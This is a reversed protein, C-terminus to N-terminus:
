SDHCQLKTSKDVKSLNIIFSPPPMSAGCACTVFQGFCYTGVRARCQKCFLREIEHSGHSLPTMWDHPEVFLGQRCCLGDGGSDSTMSSWSLKQSPRHSFSTESSALFCRCKRCRYVTRHSMLSTSPIVAMDSPTKSLSMRYARM